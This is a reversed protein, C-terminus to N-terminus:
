IMRWVDSPVFKSPYFPSTRRLYPFIEYEFQNLLEQQEKTVKTGRIDKMFDEIISSMHYANIKYEQISEM